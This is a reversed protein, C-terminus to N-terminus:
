IKKRLKELIDRAIDKGGLGFALGGALAVMAIIGAFLIRILDSAIGLQNLVVLFVFVLVAWRGVMAISKASDKSLGRVSAILLDYVLKSIVFGVLLLLVAILVNPLYLLLNNLVDVFKGLGWVQATPVLFVIIIFWRVIESLISSWDAAEKSEPVGYKKLFSEFKILKLSERVMQRLFTSIIIGILLIIFGSLFRPIFSIITVASGNLTDIVVSNVSDM